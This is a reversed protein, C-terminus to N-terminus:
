AIEVVDVRNLNSRLYALSDGGPSVAVSHVVDDSVPTGHPSISSPISLIKEWQRFDLLDIKGQRGIAALREDGTFSVSSAWEPDMKLVDLSDLDHVLLGNPSASLLQGSPSFLPEPFSYRGLHISQVLSESEWDYLYLCDRGGLIVKKGDRAFAISPQQDKLDIIRLTKGSTTSKIYARNWVGVGLVRNDPSFTMKAFDLGNAPLEEFSSLKGAKGSNCDHLIIVSKWAAALQSLDASSTMSTVDESAVVCTLPHKGFQNVSHIKALGTQSLEIVMNERSFGIARLPSESPDGFSVGGVHKYTISASPSKPLAEESILLDRLSPLQEVAWDQLSAGLSQPLASEALRVALSSLARTYKLLEVNTENPSSSSNVIHAVGRMLVDHLSPPPVLNLSRLENVVAELKREVPWGPEGATKIQNAIASHLGASEQRLATEDPEVIFEPKRALGFIRNNVAGIERILRPSTVENAKRIWQELNV